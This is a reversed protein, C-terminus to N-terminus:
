PFEWLGQWPMSSDVVRAGGIEEGPRGGSPTKVIGDHTAGAALGDLDEGPTNLQYGPILQVRDCGGRRGRPGGWATPSRRTPRWHCTAGEEVGGLDDGHTLQRGMRM